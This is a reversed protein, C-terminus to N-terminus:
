VPMTPTSATSSVTTSSNSQSIDSRQSPVPSEANGEEINTPMQITKLLRYKLEMGQFSLRSFEDVFTYLFPGLSLIYIWEVIVFPLYLWYYPDSPSWSLRKRPNLFQDFTGIYICILGIGFLIISFLTVWFNQSRKKYVEMTNVHGSFVASFQLNYFMYFPPCIFFGSAGLFHICFSDNFRLSGLLMCSISTVIGFMYAIFNSTHFFDQIRPRENNNQDQRGYSKAVSGGPTLPVMPTSEPTQPNPSQKLKKMGNYFRDVVPIFSDDSIVAKLQCFRITAITLFLFGFVSIYFTLCNAEPTLNGTDSVM